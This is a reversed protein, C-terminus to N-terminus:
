MILDETRDHHYCIAIDLVEKYRLTEDESLKKLDAAKGNKIVMCVDKEKSYILCYNDPSIKYEFYINTDDERFRIEFETNASTDEKLSMLTAM